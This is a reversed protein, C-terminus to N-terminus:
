KPNSLPASIHSATRPKLCKLQLEMQPGRIFGSAARLWPCLQSGYSTAKLCTIRRWAVGKPNGPFIARGFAFLM